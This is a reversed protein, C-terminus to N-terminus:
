EIPPCHVNHFGPGDLSFGGLEGEHTKQHRRLHQKLRFTMGCDRCSFPREGTHIRRHRTLDHSLSFKKGCDECAYLNVGTHTRQHRRFSIVNRFRHGCDGCQFPKSEGTEASPLHLWMKDVADQIAQTGGVGGGGGVDASPPGDIEFHMGFGPIDSPVGAQQQSQTITHSVSQRPRGLGSLNSRHYRWKSFVHGKENLRHVAAFPPFQPTSARSSNSVSGEKTVGTVVTRQHEFSSRAAGPSETAAAAVVAAQKGHVWARSDHGRWDGFLQLSHKPPRQHPVVNTDVPYLGEEPDERWEGEAGHPGKSDAPLGWENQTPDGETDACHMMEAAEGDDGAPTSEAGHCYKERKEVKIDKWVHSPDVGDEDLVPTKVEAETAQEAKVTGLGWASSSQAESDEQLDAQAHSHSAVGDPAVRGDPGILEGEGLDDNEEWTDTQQGDVEENLGASTQAASQAAEEASYGESMGEDDMYMRSDRETRPYLAPELCSFREASHLLEQSLSNLMLVIADLLGSLFPQFAATNGAAQLGGGAGDHRKPSSAETVRRLVAYFAFPLRERAAAFMEARVHPQEACALFAEYDGIGLERDVAEAVSHSVGHAALWAPFDQRPNISSVAAAAM